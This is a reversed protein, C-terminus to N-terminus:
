FSIQCFSGALRIENFKKLHVQFVLVILSFIQLQAHAKRIYTFVSAEKNTWTRALISTATSLKRFINFEGVGAIESRERTLFNWPTLAKFPCWVTQHFNQQKQSYILKPFKKKKQTNCISLLDLLLLTLRPNNVSTEHIKREWENQVLDKILALVAFAKM